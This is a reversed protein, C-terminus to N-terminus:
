PKPTPTVTIGSPPTIQAAKRSLIVLDPLYLGSTTMERANMPMLYIYLQANQAADLSTLLEVGNVSRNKIGLSPETKSFDYVITTDRVSVALIVVGSQKRDLAGSTTGTKVTGAAPDIAKFEPSLYLVRLNEIVTKGYSGEVAQDRVDMVASIGVRDGPRLLGAFGSANEVNIAVAREDPQLALAEVGVSSKRIIDGMSRNTLMTLGVVSAPDSIVDDPLVDKPFSKLQMDAAELVHGMPLDAVAVAVKSQAPPTLLVLVALFAVVALVIPLIKKM